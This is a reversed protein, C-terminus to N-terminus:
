GPAACRVGGHRSGGGGGRYGPAAQEFGQHYGGNVGGHDRHDEHM